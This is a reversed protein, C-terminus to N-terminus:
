DAGFRYGLDALPRFSTGAVRECVVRDGLDALLYATADDDDTLIRYKGDRVEIAACDTLALGTAGTGRLADAFARRREPVAHPTFRLGGVWGLAELPAYKEDPHADSLGGEFWCLAGASLGAVVTGDEAARRLREDVGRERWRDLMSLTDGGGVYVLDAAAIKREIAADDDPDDVLRLVETECGLEGGYYDHFTERYGRADGSATPVFLATPTSGDAAAVIRRDIGRTEGDAIEGGGIAIIHTM